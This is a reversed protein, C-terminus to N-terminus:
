FVLDLVARLDDATRIERVNFRTLIPHRLALPLVEEIQERDIGLAGLSEPLGLERLLAEIAQPLTRYGGGIADLVANQRASGADQMWRAQALMLVGGMESHGVMAHPALIHTMWHSFGHVASMTTQVLGAYWSALQAATAAQVDGPGAALKPLNDFFLRIAELSLVDSFPHPAVCVYSNIAHDLGRIGTAALLHRPTLALLAPDYVIARPAASMGSLRVKQRTDPDVPTGGPTWEATALTTPVAIQRITPETTSTPIAELGDESMYWQYRLLAEKTFAQGSIAIQVFKCFDIVSGGGIGILVDAEAHRAQAAAALVNPIPAHEGVADTIGVCREGLEAALQDIGDSNARLSRSCVIFARRYGFRAILQPVVDTFPRGHVVREVGSPFIFQNM